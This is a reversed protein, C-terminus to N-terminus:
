ETPPPQPDPAPESAPQEVTFKVNPNTLGMKEMEPLNEPNQVFALFDGPSNDFKKRVVAPLSEFANEADILIQQAAHFDLDSPLDAYNGKHENVHNIMGTKAYKKLILNIDCEKAMSQMARTKGTCILKVPEHEVYLSRM